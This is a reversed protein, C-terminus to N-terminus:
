KWKTQKKFEVHSIMRYIDKELQNWEAYYERPGDMNDCIALNREKKKKKTASYDKMTYTYVRAEKDKQRNTSVQIAEM